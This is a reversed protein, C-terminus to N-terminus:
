GWPGRVRGVTPAAWDAPRHQLSDCAPSYTSLSALHVAVLV